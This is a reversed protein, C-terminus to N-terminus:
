SFVVTEVFEGVFKKQYSYYLELFSLFSSLVFLIFYDYFLYDFLQYLTHKDLVLSGECCSLDGLLPPRCALSVIVYAQWAHWYTLKISLM